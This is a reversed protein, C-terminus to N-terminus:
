RHRPDGSAWGWVPETPTTEDRKMEDQVAGVFIGDAAPDRQYFAHELEQALIMVQVKMARQVEAEPVHTGPPEFMKTIENVRRRLVDAILKYEDNTM